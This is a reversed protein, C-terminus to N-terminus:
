GEATVVNFITHRVSFWYFTFSFLYFFLFVPSLCVRLSLLRVSLCMVDHIAHPHLSIRVSVGQAVIHSHDCTCPTHSFHRTLHIQRCIGKKGLDNIISNTRYGNLLKDVLRRYKRVGKKTWTPSTM